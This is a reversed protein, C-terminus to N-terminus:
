TVNNVADFHKARECPAFNAVAEHDEAILQVIVRSDKVEVAYEAIADRLTGNPFHYLINNHNKIGATQAVKQLTVVPWCKLGAKLIKEKIKQGHSKKM